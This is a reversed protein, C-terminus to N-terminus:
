RQAFTVIAQAPLTLSLSQGAGITQAPYNVPFTSNSADIGTIDYTGAPAGTVNLSQPGAVDSVVVVVLKGGPSRFAVPKIVQGYSADSGCGGCAASVRVYGPHIWHSFQRHAYYQPCKTYGSLDNALVLLVGVVNACSAPGPPNFWAGFYQYESVNMETMSWYIDRAAAQAATWNSTWNTWCCIETMATKAGISAALTRLNNRCTFEAASPQTTNQYDYAHSSIMEVAPLNAVATTAFSSNCSWLEPLQLKTQVGMSGFRSALAAAFSNVESASRGGGLNPENTVTARDPTLSVAPHALPTIGQLWRIYAQVFTAYKSADSQLFSPVQARPM